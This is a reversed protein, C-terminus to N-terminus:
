DLNKNKQDKYFIREYRQAHARSVPPCFVDNSVRSIHYKVVLEFVGGTLTNLGNINRDYSFGVEMLHKQDDGFSFAMDFALILADTSQTIAEGALTNNYFVSFGINKILLEAGLTFASIGSQFDLRSHFLPTFRSSKKGFQWKPVYFSNHFTWRPSLGTGIGQLSEISTPDGLDLLHNIRGGLTWQFGNNNIDYNIQRFVFGFNI